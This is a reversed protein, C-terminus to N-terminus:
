NEGNRYNAGIGTLYAVNNQPLVNIVECGQIELGLHM